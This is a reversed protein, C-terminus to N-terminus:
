ENPACYFLDWWKPDIGEVFLASPKPKDKKQPCQRSWHGKQKCNFCTTDKTPNHSKKLYPIKKYSKYKHKKKRPWPHDPTFQSVCDWIM